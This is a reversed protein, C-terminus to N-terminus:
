YRQIEVKATLEKAKEVSLAANEMTSANAAALATCFRLLMESEYNEACAIAFAAVVTDGCGVTNVTKVCPAKAFLVDAKSVYLLGKTGMSVMVHSVGRSCFGSAAKITDQLGTIKRGALFELERANPKIMYPCAGAGQRLPEGSSDLLVRKGQRKAEMILQGYISAPVGGPVSGSLVVLDSDAIEREFSDCFRALEKESVTPGPELLETVYGDQSLLNVNVRTEGEVHTFSCEGGIRGVYDEIFRGTYGGLFGLTKVPYGYQRLVKAVNIGKGGAFNKVSDMRNVQGPLLRASTCTKDVAPNLTVTTFKM